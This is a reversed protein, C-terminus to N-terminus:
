KRKQFLALPKPIAPGQPDVVLFPFLPSGGEVLRPTPSVCGTGAIEASWTNRDRSARCGRTGFSVVPELLAVPVRRFCRHTGTGARTGIGACGPAATGPSALDADAGFGTGGLGGLARAGGLCAAVRTNQAPGLAVALSMHPFRCTHTAHAAPGALGALSKNGRV